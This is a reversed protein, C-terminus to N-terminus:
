KLVKRMDFRTIEHPNPGLYRPRRFSYGLNVYLQQAGAKYLMVNLDITDFGDKLVIEEMLEMARRAYGKRRFEPFVSIYDVFAVQKEPYKLYSFALLGVNKGLETDYIHYPQFREGEKLSKYFGTIEARGAALASQFNPYEKQEVMNGAYENISYEIYDRTEADNMPRLEVAMTKGWVSNMAMIVFVGSNHRKFFTPVDTHRDIRQTADKGIDTDLQSPTESGAEKALMAM